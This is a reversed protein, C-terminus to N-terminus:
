ANSERELLDFHKTRIVVAMLEPVVFRSLSSEAKMNLGEKKETLAHSLHFSKAVVLFSMGNAMNKM